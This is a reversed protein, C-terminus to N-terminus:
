LKFKLGFFQLIAIYMFYYFVIIKFIYDAILNYFSLM